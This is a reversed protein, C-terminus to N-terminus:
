LLWCTNWMCSFNVKMGSQHPYIVASDIEISTTNVYKKSPYFYEKSKIGFKDLNQFKLSAKLINSFLDSVELFM